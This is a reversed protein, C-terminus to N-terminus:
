SNNNQQSDDNIGVRKGKWEMKVIKAVDDIVRIDTIQRIHFGNPIKTRITRNTCEGKGKIIMKVLKIDTVVMKNVQDDM